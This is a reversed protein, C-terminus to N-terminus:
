RDDRTAENSVCGGAVILRALVHHQIASLSGCRVKIPSSPANRTRQGSQSHAACSRWKKERIERQRAAGLDRVERSFDARPCVGSRGHYLAVEERKLEISDSLRRHGAHPAPTPISTRM